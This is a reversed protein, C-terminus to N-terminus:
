AARLGAARRAAQRAGRARAILDHPDAAPQLATVGASVALPIRRRAGEVHAAAALDGAVRQAEEVSTGPLLVAFEGRELRAPVDTGRLRGGLIGAVLGLAAEGAPGGAGDDGPPREEVALLLLASAPERRRTHQVLVEAFARRDLLERAPDRGAPEDAGASAAGAPDAVDVAISGVGLLVGDAGRVPYTTVHRHRLEGDPGPLTEEYAVVRGDALVPAERAAREACRSAPLLECPHRGLIAAPPRGLAAAGKENVLQIHGEADRLEIALPAHDLLALLMSRERELLAAAAKFPEIDTVVGLVGAPRGDGAPRLPVVSLQTWATSGDPRVFRVELAMSGGAAVLRDWAARLGPRDEPHIASWWGAGGADAPTLGALECFRANVYTAGAASEIELIGVPALAALGRFREESHALAREASSRALELRMSTRTVLTIVAVAIVVLGAALLGISAEEGVLGAEFALLRLAGLAPPVVLAVPVVRRGLRGADTASALVAGLGREPHLLLLALVLATLGATVVAIGLSESLTADAGRAYLLSLGGALVLLAPPMALLHARPWPGTGALGLAVLALAGAAPPAARWPEGAPDPGPGLGLAVGALIALAALAAAAALARAAAAHRELALGAAALGAAALAAALGPVVFAPGAGSERLGLGAAWGLLLVAGSAVAVLGAAAAAGALPRLECSPAGAGRRPVPHRAAVARVTAELTGDTEGGKPAFGAAGAGLASAAVAPDTSGSLAVVPAPGAAAVLAAVLPAGEADPLHLDLLVVDFTAHALEARALALTPAHRVAFGDLALAVLAAYDPSDEVLLLELAGAGTSSARRSV